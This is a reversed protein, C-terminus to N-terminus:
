TETDQKEWFEKVKDNLELSNNLYDPKLHEPLMKEYFPKHFRDDIFLILGKDEETRIVRGASQLVRNMGPYAYAFAYGEGIEREYYNKILDREYDMGPLGPGIIVTGILEEYPLDIGESFVGGMVCFGILWDETEERFKNIFSEREKDKMDKEQVISKRQGKNIEEFAEYIESLYQYSPFFILYHGKKADIFNIIDEVIQHNTRKRDSYRTSISDDCLVKYHSREFPSPVAITPLKDKNLLVKKYYDFPTLTASFFVTPNKTLEEELFKSPDLCVIRVQLGNRKHKLYLKYKDLYRSFIESIISFNYVEKSCENYAELIEQDPNLNKKQLRLFYISAATQFEFLLDTIKQFIKPDIEEIEGETPVLTKRLEYLYDCLKKTKKKLTTTGKLAEKRTKDSLVHYLRSFSIENLESSFMERSRDPLNHAEDILTIRKNNFNEFKSVPDFAYNYDCIVVDVWNCLELSFQYPCLENELCIKEIYERDFEDNSKFLHILVKRLKTYYDKAYICDDPNCSKINDTNFCIKDKATLTVSKVKLGNDRMKQLAKKAELQITTKATLYYIQYDTFNVLSKIAPFLSAVTKGIGTPAEIFTNHNERITNFVALSMERQGKRFTDYIFDLKSITENREEIWESRLLGISLWAELLSNVYSKLEDLTYEKDFYTSENTLTHFYHLRLRIKDLNNEILYFLGYFCLQARHMEEEEFEENNLKTTTKIEEIILKDNETYIADARGTLIFNYDKYEYTHKFYVESQYNERNESDEEQIMRHIRAGEQMRLSGSGRNDLSGSRLVFQVLDGIGLEFTQM